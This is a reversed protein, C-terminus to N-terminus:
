SSAPVPQYLCYKEAKLGCYKYVLLTACCKNFAAIFLKLMLLLLCLYAANIVDKRKKLDRIKRLWFCFVLFIIKAKLM